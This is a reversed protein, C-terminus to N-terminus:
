WRWTVLSRIEKYTSHLLVTSQLCGRRWYTCHDFCSRDYGELHNEGLALYRLFAAGTDLWYCRVPITRLGCRWRKGEDPRVGWICSKRAHCECRTAYCLELVLKRRLRSHPVYRLSHSPGVALDILSALLLISIPRPQRLQSYRRRTMHHFYKSSFKPNGKLASGFLALMQIAWRWWKYVSVEAGKIKKENVAITLTPATM